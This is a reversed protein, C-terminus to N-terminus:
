AVKVINGIFILVYKGIYVAGYKLFGSFEPYLM